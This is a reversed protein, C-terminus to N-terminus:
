IIELEERDSNNDTGNRVEKCLLFDDYIQALCRSNTIQFVPM